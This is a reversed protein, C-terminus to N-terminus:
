PRLGRAFTRISHEIFQETKIETIRDGYMSKSLFFGLNMWIFTMAQAEEHIEGLKGQERMKQLYEILRHKFDRPISAAKEDLVELAGAERLGILVMDGHQKMFQHYAAAIALLDQELDWMVHEFVAQFKPIYSYEEVLAEVIGKKSGFHRFLTSENVAATKAIAKTTVAKYGKNKLLSAAAQLIRRRTEEPTQQDM